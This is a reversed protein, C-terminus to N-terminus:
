RLRLQPFSHFRQVENIPVAIALPRFRALHLAGVLTIAPFCDNNVFHGAFTAVHHVNSVRLLGVLFPHTTMEIVDLFKAGFPDFRVGISSVKCRMEPLIGFRLGPLHPLNLSKLYEPLSIWDANRFSKSSSSALQADPLFDCDDFCSSIM